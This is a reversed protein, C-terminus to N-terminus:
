LSEDPLELEVSVPVPVTLELPVDCSPNASATFEESTRTAKPKESVFEALDEPSTVPEGTTPSERPSELVAEIEPTAAVKDAFAATWNGATASRAMGNARGTRSEKAGSNPSPSKAAISESAGTAPSRM